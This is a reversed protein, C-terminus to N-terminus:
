IVTSKTMLQSFFSVHIILYRYMHLKTIFLFQCVLSNFPIFLPLFCACMIVSSYAYIMIYFSVYLKIVTVVHIYFIICLFSLFFFVHM